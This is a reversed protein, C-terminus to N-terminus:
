PKIRRFTIAWVYPNVAWGFGRKSNLSDWFAAFDSRAPTLTQVSLHSPFGEANADEETIEVLRQVLVKVVELTIRSAWRPMHISPVWPSAETGDKRYETGGNGSDKIIHETETAQYLCVQKCEPSYLYEGDDMACCWTERVWLQTGATGWPCKFVPAGRSATCLSKSDKLRFSWVAPTIEVPEYAGHDWFAGHPYITRSEVIRRTQTKRGDQIAPILPASFLIPKESM